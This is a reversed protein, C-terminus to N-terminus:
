ILVYKQLDKDWVKLGSKDKFYFGKKSKTKAGLYGKKILYKVWQM